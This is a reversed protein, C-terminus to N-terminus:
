GTITSGRVVQERLMRDIAPFPRQAAAPVALWDGTGAEGKFYDFPLAQQSTPIHM